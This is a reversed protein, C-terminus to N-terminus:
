LGKTPPEFGEAAVLRSALLNRALGFFASSGASAVFRQDVSNVPRDRM